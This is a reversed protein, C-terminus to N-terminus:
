KKKVARAQTKQKQMKKQLHPFKTAPRRAAQSPTKSMSEVERFVYPEYRLRPPECDSANGSLRLGVRVRRCGQARSM